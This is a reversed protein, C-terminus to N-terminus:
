PKVEASVNKGTASNETALLRLTGSFFIRDSNQGLEPRIEVKKWAVPPTMAELRVWFAALPELTSATNIDIELFSLENNIRSRRVTGISNLELGAAQAVADIRSRLEVDAVGDRAEVWCEATMAQYRAVAERYAQEKQEQEALIALQKKQERRANELVTDRPFLGAPNIDFSILLVVASFLLGAVCFIGKARTTALWKNKVSM